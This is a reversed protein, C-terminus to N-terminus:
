WERPKVSKVVSLKMTVLPPESASFKASETNHSSPSSIM